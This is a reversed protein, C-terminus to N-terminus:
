CVDRRERGPWMAGRWLWSIRQHNLWSIVNCYEPYIVCVYFILRLYHGPGSLLWIKKLYWVVSKMGKLQVSLYFCLLFYMLHINDDYLWIYGYLYCLFSLTIFLVYYWLQIFEESQLENSNIVWSSNNKKTDRLSATTIWQDSTAATAGAWSSNPGPWRLKTQLQSTLSLIYNVAAMLIDAEDISFCWM